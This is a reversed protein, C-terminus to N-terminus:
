TVLIQLHSILSPPPPGVMNLNQTRTWHFKMKISFIKGNQQRLLEKSKTGKNSPYVGPFVIYKAQNQFCGKKKASCFVEPESWISGARIKSHSCDRGPVRNEKRSFPILLWSRAAQGKNHHLHRKAHSLPFSIPAHVCVHICVDTEIPLWQVDHKVHTYNRLKLVQSRSIEIVAPGLRPRGRAPRHVTLFKAESDVM